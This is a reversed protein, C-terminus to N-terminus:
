QRSVQFLGLEVFTFFPFKPQPLFLYDLVENKQADSVSVDQVISWTAIRASAHRPHKASGDTFFRLRDSVVPKMSIRDPYKVTSLFARLSLCM